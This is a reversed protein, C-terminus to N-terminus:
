GYMQACVQFTHTCLFSQIGATHSLWLIFICTLHSGVSVSPITPTMRNTWREKCGTSASRGQDKWEQIEATVLVITTHPKLKKGSRVSTSNEAWSRSISFSQTRYAAFPFLNSQVFLNCPASQLSYMSYMLSCIPSIGVDMLFHM